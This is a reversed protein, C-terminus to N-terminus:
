KEDRISPYLEYCSAVAWRTPAKLSCEEANQYGLMSPYLHPSLLFGLVFSVVGIVVLTSTSHKM